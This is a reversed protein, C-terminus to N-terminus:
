VNILLIPLDAESIRASPTIAREKIENNEFFVLGKSFWASFGWIGTRKLNSIHM